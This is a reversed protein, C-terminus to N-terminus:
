ENDIIVEVKIERTNLEIQTMIENQKKLLSTQKDIKGSIISSLIYVLLWVIFMLELTEALLVKIQQRVISKKFNITIMKKRILRFYPLQPILM